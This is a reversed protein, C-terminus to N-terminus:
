KVENMYTCYLFYSQQMCKIYAERLDDNEALLLYEEDEIIERVPLMDYYYEAGTGGKLKNYYKNLVKVYKGNDSRYRCKEQIQKFYLQVHSAFSKGCHEKYEPSYSIGFPTDWWGDSNKYIRGKFWTKYDSYDKESLIHYENSVTEPRESVLYDFIRTNTERDDLSTLSFWCIYNNDIRGIIALKKLHNIRFEIIVETDSLDYNPTIANTPNIMNYSLIDKM